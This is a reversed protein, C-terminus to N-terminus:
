LINNRRNVGLSGLEYQAFQMRKKRLVAHNKTLLVCVHVFLPFSNKRFQLPDVKYRQLRFNDNLKEFKMKHFTKLNWKKRRPILKALLERDHKYLLLFIHAFFRFFCKQAVRLFNRHTSEDYFCM